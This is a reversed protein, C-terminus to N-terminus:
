AKRGAHPTRPKARKKAYGQFIYPAVSIPHGRDLELLGLITAFWKTPIGDRQVWKRATWHGPPPLNYTGIFASLQEPTGFHDLVFQKTDFTM